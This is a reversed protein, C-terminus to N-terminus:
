NVNLFFLLLFGQPGSLVCTHAERAVAQWSGAELISLGAPSSAATQEAESELLPQSPTIGEAFEPLPPGARNLPLM